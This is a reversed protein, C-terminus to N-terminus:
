RSAGGVPGADSPRLQWDICVIEPPAMFRVPIATTGIGRSVYLKPGPGDYWGHTYRGSGTPRYPAYGCLTVQGGHTHGALMLQPSPLPQDKLQTALRDRVSPLHALVLHNGGSVAGQVAKRFDPRAQDLGTLLLGAGAHRITTSENILLRGRNKRYIGDLKALDLQARYEWNGPVGYVPAADGLLALFADFQELDQPRNCADGTIVILDPRLERVKRATERELTGVHGLHLDSLQVLRLRCDPAAGDSRFDLRSVLPLNPEIGFAYGTVLTGGVTLLFQRRSIKRNM